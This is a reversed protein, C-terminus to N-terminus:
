GSQGTESKSPYGEKQLLEFFAEVVKPDFHKNSQERLYTLVKKKPWAKRYPRDSLLADWVDVIAFIRASLPIQNGKLGHPYGTGDWKEHHYYPIELAQKLYNIKSLWDFAYVPHKRMVRWEEETLKGPKQLLNDPVGMKGIDHLMAGLRIHTLEDKGIGLKDALKMTMGVVRRSHGETEMDRLELAHAWGEITADYAQILELNTKQLDEFLNTNDIAIAAQGALAELFAMWEPDPNLRKRHYIELVGTIIGKSLLPVGIYAVFGEKRFEPSQM